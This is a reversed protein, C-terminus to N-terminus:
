PVEGEIFLERKIEKNKEENRLFLFIEMPVHSCMFNLSSGQCSLARPNKKQQPLDRLICM